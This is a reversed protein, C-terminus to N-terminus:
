KIQSCLIKATLMRARSIAQDMDYYRYKGLRGCILLKSQTKSLQVYRKFLEHNTQDPFPYAYHEPLKPTITREITLLTGPIQKALHAPILHKWELAYGPSAASYRTM